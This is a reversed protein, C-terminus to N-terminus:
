SNYGYLEDAYRLLAASVQERDFGHGKAIANMHIHNLVVDLTVRKGDLSVTQDRSPMQLVFMKIGQIQEKLVDEFVKLFDQQVPYDVFSCVQGVMIGPQNSSKSEADLFGAFVPTDEFFLLFLAIVVIIKKM